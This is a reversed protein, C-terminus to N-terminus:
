EKLPFVGDWLFGVSQMFYAVAQDENNYNMDRLKQFAGRIAKETLRHEGKKAYRMRIWEYAAERVAQNGTVSDAVAEAEQLSLFYKERKRPEKKPAPPEPREAPKQAEQPKAVHAPETEPKGENWPMVVFTGHCGKSKLRCMKVKKLRTLSAIIQKEPLGIIPAIESVIFCGTGMDKCLVTLYALVRSDTVSRCIDYDKM